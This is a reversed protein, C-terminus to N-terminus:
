PSMQDNHSQTNNFSNLISFDYNKLDINEFNIFLDNDESNTLMRYMNEKSILTDTKNNSGLKTINKRCYNMSCIYIGKKIERTYNINKQPNKPGKKWWKLTKEQFVIIHCTFPNHIKIKNGKSWNLACESAGNINKLSFLINLISFDSEGTHTSKFTKINNALFETILLDKLSSGLLGNGDMKSVYKTISNIKSILEVKKEYPFELYMKINKLKTYYDIIEYEINYHNIISIEDNPKLDISSEDLNPSEGELLEEIVEQPTESINSTDSVVPEITTDEMNGEIRPIEKIKKCFIELFEAKEESTLIDFIKFIKIQNLRGNSTCYDKLVPYQKILKDSLKYREDGKPM